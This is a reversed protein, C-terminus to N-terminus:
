FQWQRLGPGASCSLWHMFMRLIEHRHGVHLEIWVGVAQALFASHKANEAVRIRGCNRREAQMRELMATLFGGADDGKVALAKMGLAAKAEDAIGKCTALHDVAQGARRGDTVYAIRGGAFGNKAVHLRQESLEFAATEGDTM